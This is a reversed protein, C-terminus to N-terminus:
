RHIWGIEFGVASPSMVQSCFLWIHVTDDGVIDISKAHFVVARIQLIDAVSHVLDFSIDTTKLLGFNVGPTMPNSSCDLCCDPREPVIMM